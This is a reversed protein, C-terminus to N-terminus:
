FELPYGCGDSIRDAGCAGASEPIEPLFSGASRRLLWEDEKELTRDKKRFM